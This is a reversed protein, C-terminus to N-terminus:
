RGVMFSAKMVRSGVLITYSEPTARSRELSKATSVYLKPEFLIGM